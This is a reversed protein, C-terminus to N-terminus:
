QTSKVGLFVNVVTGGVMLVLYTTMICYARKYPRLPPRLSCEAMCGPPKLISYLSEHKREKAVSLATRGLSNQTILVKLARDAGKVLLCRAIKVHGALASLHLPTQGQLDQANVPSQLALLLSAALECGMFSAWHLPTGGKIDTPSVDFGQAALFAIVAPQNGQAAVHM